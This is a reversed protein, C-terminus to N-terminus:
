PEMKVLEYARTGLGVREMETGGFPATSFYVKSMTDERIRQM